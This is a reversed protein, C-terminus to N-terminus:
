YKTWSHYNLKHANCNSNDPLLNFIILEPIDDPITLVSVGQYKYAMRVAEDMLQPLTAPSTVLNNYVAVDACLNPTDFEQFFWTNLLHSQVQGVIAVVTAHDMKADYLGNLLHIAGPGGISM